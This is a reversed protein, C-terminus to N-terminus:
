PTCYCPNKGFTYTLTLGSYFYWDNSEQNGFKYRDANDFNPNSGDLNDTFTYRAGLEASLVFRQNIRAKVGAAFPIAFGYKKNDKDEILRNNKFYLDNYQIGSVGVYLYPTLAFDPQHLDFEFYNFEVGLSLEKINNTFSYDRKRRSGMGSKADEGSIKLQTFSVKYSHRPSKNWRYTLNYGLDKPSAYNTSGIDGVYNSGGLGFGVEHIQAKALGISLTAFLTLITKRM